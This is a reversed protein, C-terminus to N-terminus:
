LEYARTSQAKSILSTHRLIESIAGLVASTLNGINITFNVRDNYSNVDLSVAKSKFYKELRNDFTKSYNNAKTNGHDKRLKDEEKCIEQPTKGTIKHILDSSVNDVYLKARGGFYSINHECVPYKGFGFGYEGGQLKMSHNVHYHHNIAEMLSDVNGVLQTEHIDVSLNIM